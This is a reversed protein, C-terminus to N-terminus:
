LYNWVPAVVMLKYRLRAVGFCRVHTFSSEGLWKLCLFEGSREALPGDKGGGACSVPSM